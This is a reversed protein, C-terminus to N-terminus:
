TPFGPQRHGVKLLFSKMSESIPHECIFDGFEDKFKLWSASLLGQRRFYPHLWIWDMAWGAPHDQWERWRFCTAGIAPVRFDNSLHRAKPVLWLFAVLSSETEKEGTSYQVFDYRLEERFYRAIKYVANRHQKPSSNTVRLPISWTDDASVLPPVIDLTGQIIALPKQTM